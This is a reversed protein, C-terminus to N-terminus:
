AADFNQRLVLIIVFVVPHLAPSPSTVGSGADLSNLKSMPLSTFAPTVFVEVHAGARARARPYPLSLAKVEEGDTYILSNVSGHDKV